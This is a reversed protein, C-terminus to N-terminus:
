ERKSFELETTMEEGDREFVLKVKQGPKYSRLSTMFTMAAGIDTNDLKKLVDHAKLGAKDAPGGPVVQHVTTQNAAGGMAVVPFSAGLYASGPTAGPLQMPRRRRNGLGMQIAAAMPNNAEAESQKWATLQTASLIDKLDSSKLRAEDGYIITTRALKQDAENELTQGLVRDVAAVMKDRQTPSFRLLKDLEQVRNMVGMKRVFARRADDSEKLRTQQAETLVKRVINKWIKQREPPIDGLMMQSMMTFVQANVPPAADEEDEEEEDDGVPAPLFGGLAGGMQDQLARAQKKWEVMSRSVTGKAGTQLRRVQQEDLECIRKMEDIRIELQSEFKKKQTVEPDAQQGFPNAIDFVGQGNAPGIGVMATLLVALVYQHSPKPIRAVVSM